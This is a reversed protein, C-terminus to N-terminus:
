SEMKELQKEISKVNRAIAKRETADLSREWERLSDIKSLTDDADERKGEATFTYDNVEMMEAIYEESSEYEMSDYGARETEKCAKRLSEMISEPADSEEGEEDTSTAAITYEHVYRGSQTVTYEIGDKKVRGTFSVGDGQCYSLSYLVKVDEGPYGLVEFGQAELNEKIVNCLDSELMPYDNGEDFWARAKEKGKETPIDAYFFLKKTM